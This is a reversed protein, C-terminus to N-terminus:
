FTEEHPLKSWTYWPQTGALHKTASILISFIASIRDLRDQRDLNPLYASGDLLREHEERELSHARGLNSNCPAKEAISALARVTSDDGTM